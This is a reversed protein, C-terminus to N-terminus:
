GGYCLYDEYPCPTQNEQDRVHECWQAVSCLVCEVTREEKQALDLCKTCIPCKM